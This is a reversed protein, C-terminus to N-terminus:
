WFVNEESVLKVEVAQDTACSLIDSTGLRRLGEFGV